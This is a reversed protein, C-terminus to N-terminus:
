APVVERVRSVGEGQGEGDRRSASPLSAGRLMCTRADAVLRLLFRINHLSALRMGLDEGARILHHLYAVSFRACAACDCSPDIPGDRLRSAPRRLDLDGDPTFVTGTRGLRTPLVCDFLDVGREIGELVDDPAGVGMLYRPRDDPLGAISAALAPWTAERREGVSLGGIAFGDFPLRKLAAAAQFRLAVDTGGQAIGFVMQGPAHPAVVSREAWRLTRATSEEVQHEPADHPPCVDLAMAIDSGLAAQVAMATEPALLHEAGDLHSRFTAGSEDVLCFQRLSLIQFGGSDTLIPGDWGMFRHLGGAREILAPGPRLWLHYTNALLCEAGIASLDSPKVGRVAANTGVPMFAPTEIVGHPTRLVGARARSDIARAVIEFASAGSAM